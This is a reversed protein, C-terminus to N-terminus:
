ELIIPTAKYLKLFFKNFQLQTKRSYTESKAINSNIANSLNEKVEFVKSQSSKVRKGIFEGYFIGWLVVVQELVELNKEDGVSEFYEM